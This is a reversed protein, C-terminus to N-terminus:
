FRGLQRWKLRFVSTIYGKCLPITNM